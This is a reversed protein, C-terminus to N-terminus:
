GVIDIHIYIHIYGGVGASLLPLADSFFPHSVLLL